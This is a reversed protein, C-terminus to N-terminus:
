SELTGLYKEKADKLISYIIKREDILDKIIQREKNIIALLRLNNKTEIVINWYYLVFFGCLPAILLIGLVILWNNTFILTLSIMVTYYFGFTFMGSIMMIPARYEIHKSAIKAIQAPIKYPIYNTILGLLWIPLGGLLFLIVLISKTFINTQLNSKKLLGDQIGLLDLKKFYANLRSSLSQLLNADATEFYKLAETIGKDIRFDKEKEPLDLTEALESKFILAAQQLLREHAKHEIIVLQTELKERIHNTLQNIADHANTKYADEWDKISIPADINLTVDSRFKEGESYNIGVILIQVDLEFDNEKAAGLAIRATGTKIERLKKELVSTGEPFILLTGKRALFSFCKKFVAQNDNQAGTPLDQKRYVPIMNFINGLIWDKFPSGFVTSKALFYVQQSLISGILVPDMFTNPHNAVVILPGKKPIFLKNNITIRRFFIRTALKVLLKLFAYVM